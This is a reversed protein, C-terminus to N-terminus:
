RTIASMDAGARRLEYEIAMQFYAASLPRPPCQVGNIFITPTGAIELAAGDSIDQRIAPLLRGYDATFDAIGLMTQTKAAIAAASSAQNEFIWDIMQARQGREAALRVAAAAECPAPHLPRPAAFNCKPDLPYDKEVYKVAGPLTTQFYALVPRYWEDTLKCTLCEWDVFKVVVVKASGPPIGLDVRPQSAWAAEFAARPDTAAAGGAAGTAGMSPPAAAAGARVPQVFAHAAWATVAVLLTALALAGPSTVATRLESAVVAPMRALPAPRSRFSIALIGLVCAYTTLCLVCGSKLVFLSTYGLYLITALGILSLLFVSAGTGADRRAGSPRAFAAVCAVLGFWFVGGLAVPVGHVSGYPSLYIQSCNFRDNIDCPSIYNPDVLLRHHIVTAWASVALGAVACLLVGARSRASMTGTMVQTAAM